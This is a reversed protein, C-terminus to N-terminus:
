GALHALQNELAPLQDEIDVQRGVATEALDDRGERMAVLIQEELRVNEENLRSMAKSVHHKQAIVLGLEAKVEDIASDVEDIAQELITEPALGEIRSVISNATGTIIRRIRASISDKM